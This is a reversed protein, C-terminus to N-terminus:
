VPGAADGLHSLLKALAPNDNGRRWTLSLEVPDPGAIGVPRFTLGAYRLRAAAAPVLALGWGGNVLALVSHVQSLYQAYVPTVGAQRFLSILLEYFYRAEVPSYMIFPQGDLDALRIPGDGAALPHDNPIAALLSERDAGREALDPDTVPPRVLGLDLSGEALAEVQDRTVM